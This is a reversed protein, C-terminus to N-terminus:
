SAGEPEGARNFAAIAEDSDVVEDVIVREIGCAGGVGTAISRACALAYRNRYAQWVGLSPTWRFGRSKLHDRTAQDPVGPFKLRVRNASPADVLVIGTSAHFEETDPAAQAKEVAELRQRLRRIEASNNRLRYDPVGVRGLADPKILEAAQAETYGIAILATIPNYNGRKAVKIAANIKKAEHQEVELRAIKARINEAANADSSKIPAAEPNVIVRLRGLAKKRFDLLEATRADAADSAKRARAVPFRAPGAIMTSVCRSKAALMSRYRKAFGERYREFEAVFAPKVEDPAGVLLRLDATMNAVYNEIEQRGREEPVHSTGRHASTALNLPIDDAFERSLVFGRITGGHGPTIHVQTPESPSRQAPSPEASASSNRANSM